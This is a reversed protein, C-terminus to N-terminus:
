EVQKRKKYAEIDQTIATTQSDPKVEEQRTKFENVPRTETFPDQNEPDVVQQQKPKSKTNNAGM